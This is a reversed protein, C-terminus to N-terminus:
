YLDNLRTRLQKTFRITDRTGDSRYALVSEGDLLKVLRRETKVADTNTVPLM